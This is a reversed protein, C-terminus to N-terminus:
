LAAAVAYVTALYGWVVSAAFHLASELRKGVWLRRDYVFLQAALRAGWFIAFGALVLGGLRGRERLADTFFLSLTGMLILTLVIFACHVVFINRNILSLRPLEERWALRRPLLLNAPVLLLILAGAIRLHIEMRGEICPRGRRTARLETPSVAEGLWLHNERCAM